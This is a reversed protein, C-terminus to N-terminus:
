RLNSIFFGLEEPDLGNEILIDRYFEMFEPNTILFLSCVLLFVALLLGIISIVLGAIALGSMRGTERKSLIALVISAIGGIIMVYPSCCCLIFSLISVVFSAIALKNSGRKGQQQYGNQQYNNYQGNYPNQGNFQNQNNYPNQGNFQNQNNYPNQGNFQNQNNYQNEGNNNLNDNKSVWSEPHSNYDNNSNNNENLGNFLDKNDM